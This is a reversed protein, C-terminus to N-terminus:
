GGPKKIDVYAKFAEEKEQGPFMELARKKEEETLTVQSANNPKGTDTDPIKPPIVVKALDELDQLPLEKYSEKWKDGMKEKIQATKSEQYADWKQAKLNVAQLKENAEDLLEKYKGQEELEKKKQNENEEKLKALEKSIEQGKKREAMLVALPVTKSDTNESDNKKSITNELDNESNITEDAINKESNNNESM